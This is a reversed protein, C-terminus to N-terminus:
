ISTNLKTTNVYSNINNSLLNYFHINSYNVVYNNYFRKLVPNGLFINKVDCKYLDTVNVYKKNITFM